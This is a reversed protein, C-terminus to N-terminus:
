LGIRYSEAAESDSRVDIGRGLDITGPLSFKTLSKKLLTRGHYDIKGSGQCTGTHVKMIKGNQITLVFGELDFSLSVDFVVKGLPQGNYLIEVYPSYAVKLTHKALPLLKTENPPSKRPDAYEKLEECKRWASVILFGVDVDFLESVKGGIGSAINSWHDATLQDTLKDKLSAVSERGQLKKFIDNWFGEVSIGFFENVTTGAVTVETEGIGSYRAPRM